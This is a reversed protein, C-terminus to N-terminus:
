PLLTIIMCQDGKNQKSQVQWWKTPPLGKLSVKKRIRISPSEPCEKTKELTFVKFDHHCIYNIAFNGYDTLRLANFQECKTMWNLVCKQKSLGRQLTLQPKM